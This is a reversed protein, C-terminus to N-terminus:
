CYVKVNTLESILKECFPQTINSCQHFTISQIARSGNPDNRSNLFTQLADDAIDTSRLVLNAIKPLLDKTDALKSIIAALFPGRLELTTVNTCLRLFPEYYTCTSAALKSGSLSLHLLRAAIGSAVIRELARAKLEDAVKILCLHKFSPASICYRFLISLNELTMTVKTLKSMEMLQLGQPLPASDSINQIEGRMDLDVINIVRRLISIMHHSKFVGCSHDLRFRQLSNGTGDMFVPLLDYFRCDAPFQKRVAPNIARDAYSGILTLVSTKSLTNGVEKNELFSDPNLRSLPHRSPYTWTEPPWHLTLSKCKFSNTLYLNLLKITDELTDNETLPAVPIYRWLSPSSHVLARWRRCIRALILVSRDPKSPRTALVSDYGLQIVENFIATLTESPLRRAVSLRAKKQDICSKLQLIHDCIHAQAQTSEILSSKAASLTEEAEGIRLSCERAEEMLKEVEVTLQQIAKDYIVGQNPYDIDPRAQGGGGDGTHDMVSNLKQQIVQNTELRLQISEETAKRILFVGELRM